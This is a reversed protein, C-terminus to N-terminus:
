KAGPDLQMMGFINGETDHCYALWGITPVPMKPLAIKAGAALAKAVYADINDVEITCPFANVPQGEAPRPGRRQMLGGNIGPTGPEGTMVLWYDQGGWQEIKWGFIERYFKVARNVDDAHIEFHTVRPM